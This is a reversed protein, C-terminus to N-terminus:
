NVAHMCLGSFGLINVVITVRKIERYFSPQPQPRKNSNYHDARKVTGKMYHTLSQSYYAKSNALGQFGFLLKDYGFATQLTFLCLQDATYNSSRSM